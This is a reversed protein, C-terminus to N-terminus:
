IFKWSLESTNRRTVTGCGEFDCKTRTTVISSPWQKQDGAGALDPPNANVRHNNEVPPMKTVKASM